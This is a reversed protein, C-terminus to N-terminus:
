VVKFKGYRERYAGIGVLGAKSILYKFHAPSLMDEDYEITCKFQVGAQIAEYAKFFSKMKTSVTYTEVSDPEKLVKGKRVFNMYGPEIFMIANNVVDRKPHSKNKAANFVMAATNFLCRKFMWNGLVPYGNNDRHCISLIQEVANTITQGKKINAQAWTLLAANSRTNIWHQLIATAGLAPTSGMFATTTEFTLQEIM